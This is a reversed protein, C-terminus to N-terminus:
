CVPIGLQLLSLGATSWGRWSLWLLLAGLALGAGWLAYRGYHKFM